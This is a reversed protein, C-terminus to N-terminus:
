FRFITLPSEGANGVKATGKMDLSVEQNQGGSSPDDFSVQLAPIYFGYGGYSNKVAFGVEFSEQSLKKDLIAWNSDSLYASLEVTTKATGPSYGTPAVEGICNKTTLQNDLGITIKQICFGASDLAGVSSTAIFPMDVSGNLSDSTAAANITRGFTIFDAALDVTKYDNGSFSFSGTIIAGHAISLNMSSVIMGRYIIAKHALDIFSKQFSFSKKAIGITLKDAQEFTTGTGVESILNDPGVFGIVTASTLATVMIQTNNETNTFVGLTIIDGKKLSGPWSGSARTLTKLSADITLDVTVPSFTVWTNLMASEMFDDIPTEKSLEFNLDGGVTLSTVIQGSSFRDTRIQQSETTGPTGSLGESTFRTTDFNGSGPTVGYTVEKIYNVSILNSSSM